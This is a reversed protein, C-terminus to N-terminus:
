KLGRLVGRSVERPANKPKQRAYPKVANSEVNKKRQIAEDKACSRVVKYPLLAASM